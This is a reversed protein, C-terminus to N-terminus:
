SIHKELSIKLKNLEESDNEKIAKEMLKMIVGLQMLNIKYNNDEFNGAVAFIEVINALNGLIEAIEAVSPNVKNHEEISLGYTKTIFDACFNVAKYYISLIEDSNNM